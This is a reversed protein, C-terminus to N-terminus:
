LERESATRDSGSLNAGSIEERSKDIYETCQRQFIVAFAADTICIRIEARESSIGSIRRCM